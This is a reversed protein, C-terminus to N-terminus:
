LSIDLIFNKIAVNKPEIPATNQRCFKRSANRKLKEKSPKPSRSFYESDVRNNEFNTKITGNINATVNLYGV